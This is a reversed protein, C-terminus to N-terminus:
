SRRGNKSRTWSEMMMRNRRVGHSLIEFDLDRSTTSLRGATAGDESLRIASVRCTYAYFLLTEAHSNRAAAIVMVNVLEGYAHVHGKRTRAIGCRKELMWVRTGTRLGPRATRTPGTGAQHGRRVRPPVRGCRSSAGRLAAPLPPERAYAGPVTGTAACVCLPRQYNIANQPEAGGVMPPPARAESKDQWPRAIAGPRTSRFLM